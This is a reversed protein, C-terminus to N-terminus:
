IAVMVESIPRGMCAFRSRVARRWRGGLGSRGREELPEAGNKSRVVAPRWSSGLETPVMGPTMPIM